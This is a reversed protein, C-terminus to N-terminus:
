REGRASLVRAAIQRGLAAGEAKAATEPIHSFEIALRSELYERQEPQLAELVAFTAVAVAADRREAQAADGGGHGDGNGNGAPRTGALALAVAHDVTALRRVVVEPPNGGDRLAEHAISTWREAAAARAVPALAFLFAALLLTRRPSM